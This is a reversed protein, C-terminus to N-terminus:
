FYKWPCITKEDEHDGFCFHKIYSCKMKVNCLGISTVFLNGKDNIKVVERKKTCLIGLVMGSIGHCHIVSRISNKPKSGFMIM